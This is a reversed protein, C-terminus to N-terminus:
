KVKKIRWVFVLCVALGLMAPLAVATGAQSNIISWLTKTVAIIIIVAIGAWLQRYWFAVCLAVLSVIVMLASLYKTIGWEGILWDQEFRLFEVIQPNTETPTPFWFM